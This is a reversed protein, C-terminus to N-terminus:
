EREGARTRQHLETERTEDNGGVPVASLQESCAEVILNWLRSGRLRELEQKAQQERPTPQDEVAIYVVIAEYGPGQLVGVSWPPEKSNILRVNALRQYRSSEIVDKRDRIWKLSSFLWGCFFAM